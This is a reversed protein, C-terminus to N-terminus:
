GEALYSLAHERRTCRHVLSERGERSCTVHMTNLVGAGPTSCPRQAQRRTCMLGLLCACLDCSTDVQVRQMSVSFARAPAHVRARVSSDSNGLAAVPCFVRTHM